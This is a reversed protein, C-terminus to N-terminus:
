GCGWDSGVKVIFILVAVINQWLIKCFITKLATQHLWMAIKLHQTNQNAFPHEAHRKSTLILNKVSFCNKVENKTM